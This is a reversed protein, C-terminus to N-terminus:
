MVFDEQLKIDRGVSLALVYFVTNYPHEAKQTKGPLHFLQVGGSLVEGDTQETSHESSLLRYSM